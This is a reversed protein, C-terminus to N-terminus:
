HPVATMVGIQPDTIGRYIMSGAIYIIMALGAWAIWRHRGIIRAILNAAVAMVTVSFG